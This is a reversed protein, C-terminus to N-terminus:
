EILHDFRTEKQNTNILKSSNDMMLSLIKQFIKDREEKTNFKLTEYDKYGMVIEIIHEGSIDFRKICNISAIKYFINNGENILGNEVIVTM